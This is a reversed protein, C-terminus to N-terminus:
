PRAGAYLSRHVDVLENTTSRGAAILGDLQVTASRVRDALSRLLARLLASAIAPDSARLEEFQARPLRLATCGADAVVSATAPGPDLLSVDGLLDGPGVRGVVQEGKPTDTTATLEGEFVLYLADTNTWEAIVAEGAQVEFVQLVDLLRDVQQPELGAALGPFRASFSEATVQAM